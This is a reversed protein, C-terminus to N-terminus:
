ENINKIKNIEEETLFQCRNELLQKKFCEFGFDKGVTVIKFRRGDPFMEDRPFYIYTFNTWDKREKLLDNVRKKYEKEVEKNYM